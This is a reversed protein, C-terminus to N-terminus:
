SPMCSFSVNSVKILSKLYSAILGENKRTKAELFMSGSPHFSFEDNGKPGISKICCVVQNM